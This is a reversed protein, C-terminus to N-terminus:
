FKIMRLFLVIQAIPSGLVKFFIIINQSLPYTIIM